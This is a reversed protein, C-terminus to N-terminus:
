VEKETFPIENNCIELILQKLETSFNNITEQTILTDKKAHPGIRDKKAFKLFGNNLNKFSIIGAEIPLKISGSLQMMYAYLLVQFSKSYKKYDLTIDEWNVVEVETQEVKGTKYDIIRILGNREDIRDVMGTLRVPFDLQDIDVQVTSKKEIAMIKIQNGARLDQIELDLFNSVYRKAIEFIILNKGTKIDGEKYVDAFHLMVTESILKKLNQISNITLFSGVLPKYFDELTNHVVTGLTNAAVTEEVEDFERIKLVKQYYFDIPNRIYNTLSSPSFGKEAVDKLIELVSDNKEVINLKAEIVPVQPAVIAHKIQHTPDLELQTIFRSKEGGNLVDAETNYIIYINKARQLLRYFHYTYVADKEKYTPLTNEIKVDFPIFSNNNKGSPLIGENVGSIIVTEFDLVRSELMGMVQLGQLPEGQFDLTESTLLEKYISHLTTIDKIHNYKSNLRVLENFLENFRFLYELSLLNSTKDRDLYTKIYLILQLCNELVRDVGNWNLFLLNIIESAEPAMDRLRNPSLYILNNNDITEIIKSANDQFLVSIFQHSVINIVDRYYLLTSYTKHVHFLSEFLSALPISKLPFGMTINLAEIDNPLSNLTPILLNEDGLIVATNQLSPNKDKLSNLLSGIYKAQGINKPIGFVSINKHNSYNNTIWNFPHKKFYLWNAKHQRAFLGADHKPNDFFVQDIDWYIKAMDNQLLEQIITEEATNLANFGLFIHQKDTNSQIYSEINEVAERYILGQYGIKKSLLIDTFRSYYSGLKNWFALYKKILGSQEEEVSWHKYEIEKIASLYNFINDQHILYRDIENFDQILVQAWKSFVEFTDKESEKTLQIYTNYFEFLLETNSIKRLESLDEVFAEISIISPSFITENAVQSLQHKLFLGARKSPMVFTLNSFNCNSKQLDKLVDFIFTTM